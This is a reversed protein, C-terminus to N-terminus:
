RTNKGQKETNKHISMIAYATFNHVIESLIHIVEGGFTSLETTERSKRCFDLKERKKDTKEDKKRNKNFIFFTLSEM